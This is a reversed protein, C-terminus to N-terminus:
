KARTALGPFNSVSELLTCTASKETVHDKVESSSISDSEINPILIPNDLISSDDPIEGSLSVSGGAEKVIRIFAKLEHLSTFDISAVCKVEM